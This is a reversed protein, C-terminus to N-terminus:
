IGVAVCTRVLQVFSLHAVFEKAFSMCGGCSSSCRRCPLTEPHIGAKHVPVRVSVLASSSAVSSVTIAPLQDITAFGQTVCATLWAHSLQLVVVDPAAWCLSSGVLVPWAIM